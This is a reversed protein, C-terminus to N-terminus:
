AAIMLRKPGRIPFSKEYSPPERLSWDPLEDLLKNLFLRMELRTLHQGLCVHIGDGFGIHPIPERTIDFSDANTWRSGDRNASGLMCAITAGAPVLTGDLETEEVATRTFWQVVAEFRMLEEVARPVLDRQSALLRRQDPHEALLVLSLGMLRATTENGGLVLQTVNAVREEESLGVDARVVHDILDGTPNTRRKVLEEAIHANMELTAQRGAAVTRQGSESEDFAGALLAIQRDSWETFRAHIEAPLGLLHAIVLTPISRVGGTVADVAEGSKVREIFPDLCDDIIKRIQQSHSSDLEGSRFERSWIGRVERHRKKDDIGEMTIGGFQDVFIEELSSSDFRTTDGLATACARYSMAMWQGELENYVVPGLERIAGLVGAPDDSLRPDKWALKVVPAAVGRSERLKM